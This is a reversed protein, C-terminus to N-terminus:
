RRRKQNRPKKRLKLRHGTIQPCFACSAKCGLCSDASLRPARSESREDRSCLLGIGMHAWIPGGVNNGAMASGGKLFSIASMIIERTACTFELLLM